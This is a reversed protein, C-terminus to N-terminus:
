DSKLEKRFKRHVLWPYIEPQIGELKEIVEAVVTISGTAVVLDHPGAVNLAFRFSEEVSEYAGVFDLGLALSASSVKDVTVSRPDRSQTALVRPHLLKMETLMGEVDHEGTAGFVLVVRRFALYENIAQVLKSISYPNHAGDAVVIREDLSKLYMRGPWEVSGIGAEVVKEPIGEEYYRPLNEVAAIATATNEIQHSGLLPLEFVSKGELGAIEVIQRKEDSEIM